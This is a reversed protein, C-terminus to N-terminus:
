KARVFFAETPKNRIRPKPELAHEVSWSFDVEVSGIRAYSIKWYDFLLSVHGRLKNHTEVQGFVLIVFAYKLFLLIESCFFAYFVIRTYFLSAIIFLM